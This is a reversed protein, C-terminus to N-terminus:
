LGYVGIKGYNVYLSPIPTMASSKKQGYLRPEEHSTPSQSHIFRSRRHMIVLNRCVLVIYYNKTFLIYCMMLLILIYSILYLYIYICVSVQLNLGRIIYDSYARVLATGHCPTEWTHITIPAAPGYIGM